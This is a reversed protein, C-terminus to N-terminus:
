SAAQSGFRPDCKPRKMSEASTNPNSPSQWRNYERDLWALVPPGSLQLRTM